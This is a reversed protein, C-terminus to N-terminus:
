SLLTDGKEFADRITKRETAQRDLYGDYSMTGGGQIKGLLEGAEGAATERHQNLTANEHGDVEGGWGRFM